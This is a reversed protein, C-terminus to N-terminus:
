YYGLQKAVAISENLHHEFHPLVTEFHQVLKENSSSPILLTRVAAIADKHFQIEHLLYERDFEEGELESLEVMKNYHAHAASQRVTPLSVENSITKALESVALRVGRHDNSVMQALTSVKNSKAKTVALLASEIDFSNVQNYIGIIQGDSLIDIQEGHAPINIILLLLVLLNLFKM